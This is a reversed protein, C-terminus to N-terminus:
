GGLMARKRAIMRAIMEGRPSGPDPQVVAQQGRSVALYAAILRLLEAAPAEAVGLRERAASWAADAGDPDGLDQRVVARWAEILGLHRTDGASRAHHTGEDLLAGAGVADGRQWAATARNLSLVPLFVTLGKALALREAAALAAEAPEPALDFLHQVGLNALTVAEAARDGIRRSLARAQELTAIAEDRRGFMVLDGALNGLAIAERRRWGLRQYIVVAQRRLAIARDVEGLPGVCRGLTELLLAREASDPVREAHGELLAAAEATRSTLHLVTALAGRALLEAPLDNAGIAQDLVERAEAEAGGVEGTRVQWTLRHLRARLELDPRAAAKAAELLGAILEPPPPQSVPHLELRALLWRARADASLAHAEQEVRAAVRLGLDLPGRERLVPAVVELGDVLDDLDTTRDLSDILLDVVREREPGLPQTRGLQRARRALTSVRAATALGRVGDLEPQEHLLARVSELLKLKAEGARAPERHVFAHDRLDELAELPEVVPEPLADLLAEATGAYFAGPLVALAGLVQRLVTPLREWSTLLCARLSRHREHHQGRRDQLLQFRDDLRAGLQEVGLVRTRAAALEIALPSRDLRDLLGDLPEDVESALETGVAAARHRFLARAGEAPLPGLEVVREGPVGAPRRSSALWRLEPAEARWAAVVTPAVSHVRDLDDLVIWARGRAELAHGIQEAHAAPDAGLLPVQLERAVAHLLGALGDADQLDVLVAERGSALLRAKAARVLFSKGMGGMGTVTVWPESALAIMLEDLAQERGFLSPEPPAPLSVHPSPATPAATAGAPEAAEAVVKAICRYGRRPVTELFSPQKPDDDVAVRIKRILQSLADDAVFVGPWLAAHLAERTLLVGPHALLYRIGDFVQPQVPVVEGDRRLQARDLDLVNAGFRLTGTEPRM